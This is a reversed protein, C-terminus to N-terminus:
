KVIVDVTLIWEGKEGGEWPRSYEFFITSSGEKLTKFTWVEQGPTGPPPPAESEPGIFKHDKQELVTTDSIQAKEPWQFGTTPNSCLTVVLLAPYNVDLEKTINPQSYFEDCPIGIGVTSAANSTDTIIIKEATVRAPYSEMVSGSFWIEVEQGFILIDFDAQQQAEGIQVGVMTKDTVTVVFKDSTKNDPSYVLLQGLTQGGQIQQVDDIWGILDPDTDTNSASCASLLLAASTVVTIGALLKAKLM